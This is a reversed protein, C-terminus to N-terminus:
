NDGSAYPCRGTQLRVGWNAEISKSVCRSLHLSATELEKIRNAADNVRLADRVGIMAQAVLRDEVMGLEGWYLEWFRALDKERGEYAAKGTALRAVISVAETYLTFQTDLFKQKSKRDLAEVELRKQDIELGRQTIELDRQDLYKFLAIAAMVVAALATLWKGVVNAAEIWM